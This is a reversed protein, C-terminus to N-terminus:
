AARRRAAADERRVPLNRVAAAAALEPRTDPRKLVLWIPIGAWLAVFVIALPINLLLWTM